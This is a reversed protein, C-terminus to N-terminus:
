ESDHGLGMLESLVRVVARRAPFSSRTEGGVGGPTVIGAEAWIPNTWSFLNDDETAAIAKFAVNPDVHDTYMTSMAGILGYIAVADSAITTKKQAARAPTSLKGYEPRVKVLSDWASM